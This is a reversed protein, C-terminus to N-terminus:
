VKRPADIRRDPGELGITQTWEQFAREAEQGAESLWPKEQLEQVYMKITEGPEYTKGDRKYRGTLKVDMMPGSYESSKSLNEQERTLKPRSKRAAKKRTKKKATPM